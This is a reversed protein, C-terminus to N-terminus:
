QTVVDPGTPELGSVLQRGDRFKGYSIRDGDTGCVVAADGM